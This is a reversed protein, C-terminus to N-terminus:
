ASSEWNEIQGTLYLVIASYIHWTAYQMNATSKEMQSHQLEMQNIFEPTAEINAGFIKIHM